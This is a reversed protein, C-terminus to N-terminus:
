LQRQEISLMEDDAVEPIAMGPHNSGGVPTSIDFHAPPRSHTNLKSELEVMKHGVNEVHSALMAALNTNASQAFDTKDNVYKEISGLTNQLYNKYADIDDAIIKIKNRNDTVVEDTIAITQAHLRIYRETTDLRDEISVFRTELDMANQPGVPQQSAGRNPQDRSRERRGTRDRPGLGHEVSGHRAGPASNGRDRAAAGPRAQQLTAILQQVRGNSLDM